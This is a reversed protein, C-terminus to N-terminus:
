APMFAAMMLSVVEASDATFYKSVLPYQAILKAIAARAEEVTAKGACGNKVIVSLFKEATARESNGNSGATQGGNSGGTSSTQAEVPKGLYDAKCEQETNWLALFKFETKDYTKGDKEYQEGTPEAVVHAWKDQIEKVSNVGLAKLSAWTIGAWNRSEAILHRECAKLNGVNQEPLPIINLDIATNRSKHVNPDFPVKGEGKVLACAWVNINVQGWFESTPMTPNSAADWPDYSQNVM